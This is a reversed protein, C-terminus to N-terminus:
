GQYMGLGLATATTPSVIFGAGHLKVGPCSMDKNAQLSRAVTPSAGDTLDANVVGEREALQVEKVAGAGERELTLLRGTGTNPAAVTMAIRVAAAGNGQAWPHDPIAFALYLPKKGEMAAANVRRCFVQRISNSTIFGFRRLKGPQGRRGELGEGRWWFFTALDISPPVKPYASWLAEAYGTGLEARLGKGAVFPPNVVIFEAEPWPAPKADVPRLM